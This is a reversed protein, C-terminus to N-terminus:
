IQGPPIKKNLFEANRVLLDMNVGEVVFTGQDKQLGPFISILYDNIKKAEYYKGFGALRAVENVLFVEAVQINKMKNRIDALDIVATVDAQSIEGKDLRSLINQMSDRAEEDFLYPNARDFFKSLGYSSNFWGQVATYYTRTEVQNKDILYRALEKCSFFTTFLARASDKASVRKCPKAAEVHNEIPGRKVFFVEIKDRDSFKQIGLEFKYEKNDKWTAFLIVKPKIEDSGILASPDYITPVTNGLKELITTQVSFEKLNAEDSAHVIISTAINSRNQANTQSPAAFLAAAIGLLVPIRSRATL